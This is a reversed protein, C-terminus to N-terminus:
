TSQRETAVRQEHDEEDVGQKSNGENQNIDDDDEFYFNYEELFLYDVEYVMKYERSNVERCTVCRSLVENAIEAFYVDPILIPEICYDSKCILVTYCYQGPFDRVLMKFTCLVNQRELGSSSRLDNM